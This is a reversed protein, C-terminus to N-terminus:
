CSHWLEMTLNGRKIDICLYITGDDNDLELMEMSLRTDEKNEIDEMLWSFEEDDVVPENDFEDLAKILWSGIYGKIVETPYQYINGIKETPTDFEIDSIVRMDEKDPYGTETTYRITM